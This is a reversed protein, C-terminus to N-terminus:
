IDDKTNGIKHFVNMKYKGEMLGIPFLITWGIFGKLFAYISMFFMKIGGIRHQYGLQTVSFLGMALSMALFFSIMVVDVAMM